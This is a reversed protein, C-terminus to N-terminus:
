KKEEPTIEIEGLYPVLYYQKEIHTFAKEDPRLISSNITDILGRLNGSKFKLQSFYGDVTKDTIEEDSLYIELRNETECITRCLELKTLDSGNTRVYLNKEFKTWQKDEIQTESEKFM